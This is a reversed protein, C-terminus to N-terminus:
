GVASRASGPENLDSDIPMDDYDSDSEDESLEVDIGHKKGGRERELEFELPQSQCSTLYIRGISQVITSKKELDESTWLAIERLGGQQLLQTLNVMGVALTKFSSPFPRNKYKRRRQIMMQLINGKRKLFHPYQLKATIVISQNQATFGNLVLRNLSLNCVRQVASSSARDMEWNAFLRMAVVGDNVMKYM